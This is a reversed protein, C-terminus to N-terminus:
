LKSKKKSRARRERQELFKLSDRADVRDLLDNLDDIPVVAMNVDEIALLDRISEAGKVLDEIGRRLEEAEREHSIQRSM